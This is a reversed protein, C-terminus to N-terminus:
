GRRPGRSLGCAATVRERYARHLRETLPGPLGSGVPQGDLRTVPMVEWGTSTVFLEDADALAKASLTREEFRLDLRAALELVLARTVGALGGAALPPTALTGAWVGFLNSVSGEAVDGAPNVLLAEDAGRGRAGRLALVHPQFSTSKLGAGTGAVNVREAALGRRWAQGDVGPAPRPAVLVTPTDCGAPDPVPPGVGRTLTLRLLADSLRNKALTRELLDVFGAADFPPTIGVRAAGTALRAHHADARFLRGGYARVTEFLGDGYLFGRDFVSVRATEAAQFRGNLYVWPGSV